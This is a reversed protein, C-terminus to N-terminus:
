WSDDPVMELVAKAKVQFLGNLFGTKHDKVCLGCAEMRLSSVPDNRDARHSELVTPNVKGIVKMLDDIGVPINRWLSHGNM